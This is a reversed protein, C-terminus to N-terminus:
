EIENGNSELKFGNSLDSHLYINLGPSQHFRDCIFQRNNKNHNSIKLLFYKWTLQRM